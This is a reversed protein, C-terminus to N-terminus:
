VSSANTNLRLLMESSRNGISNRHLDHVAVLKPTFGVIRGLILASKDSSMIVYDGYSLEEGLRDLSVQFPSKSKVRDLGAQLQSSHLLVWPSSQIGNRHFVACVGNEDIEAIDQPVAHYTYINEIVGRHGKVINEPTTETRIAYMTIM